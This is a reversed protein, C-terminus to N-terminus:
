ESAREQGLVLSGRALEEWESISLMEARRHPDIRAGTLLDLAEQRPLHLGVALANGLQKRRMAFGARAVTFLAEMVDPPLQVAKPELVVIASDVKPRPYFAGAPVRAVIKPTAYVQVSVGLLSLGGPKAVMREAVERQVMLVLRCPRCRTELFHRLLQGTIYYPINAILKYGGAFHECPDFSLANAHLVAVNSASAFRESLVRYLSDDLELAIVRTARQRLAETLVGTGAGVELVEDGSSLEAAGVIHRLVSRDQLFSQGLRKRPRLGRSRLAAAPLDGM